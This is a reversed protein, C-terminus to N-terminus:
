FSRNRPSRERKAAEKDARSRDTLDAEYREDDLQKAVGGLALVLGALWIVWVLVRRWDKPMQSTQRATGIAGLLSALVTLNTLYKGLSM